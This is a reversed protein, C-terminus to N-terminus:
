CQFREFWCGLLGAGGFGAGLSVRYNSSPIVVFRIGEPETSTKIMYWWFMNLDNLGHFGGFGTTLVRSPVKNLIRLLLGTRTM